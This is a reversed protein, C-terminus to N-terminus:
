LKVPCSHALTVRSQPGPPEAHQAHLEDVIPAGFLHVGVPEVLDHSSRSGRDTLV